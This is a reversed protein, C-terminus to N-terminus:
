GLEKAEDIQREQSRVIRQDRIYQLFTLTTFIAGVIGLIWITRNFSGSISELVIDQREKIIEIKNELREYLHEQEHSKADSDYFAVFILLGLIIVLATSQRKFM